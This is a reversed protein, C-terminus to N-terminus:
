DKHRYILKRKEHEEKEIDRFNASEPAVTYDKSKKEDTAKSADKSANYIHDKNDRLRENVGYIKEPSTGPTEDYKALEFAKQEAEESIKEKEVISELGEEKIKQKKEKEFFGHLTKKGENESEESERLKIIQELLINFERESEERNELNEEILREARKIAEGIFMLEKNKVALENKVRKISSIIVSIEAETHERTSAVLGKAHAQKQKLESELSLISEKLQRRENSFEEKIKELEAAQDEIPLKRIDEINMFIVIMEM